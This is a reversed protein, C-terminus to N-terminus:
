PTTASQWATGDYVQLVKTTTNYLLLGTAPASIGDRQGTTLRPFLVGRNTFDIDVIASAHPTDTGIGVGATQAHGVTYDALRLAPILIALALGMILLRRGINHM